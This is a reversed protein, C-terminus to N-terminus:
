NEHGATAHNQMFHSKQVFNLIIKISACEKSIFLKKKCLINYEHCQVHICTMTPNLNVIAMFEFFYFKQVANNHM